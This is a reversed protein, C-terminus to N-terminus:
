TSSVPPAPRSDAVPEGAAVGIAIALSILSKGEGERGVLLTSHGACLCRNPSGPSRPPCRTSWRWCMSRVFSAGRTATRLSRGPPDTSAISPSSTTWSRGASRLRRRSGGRFPGFRATQVFWQRFPLGLLDALALWLPAPDVSGVCSERWCALGVDDDSTRWVALTPQTDADDGYANEWFCLPCRAIWSSPGTRGPRLTADDLLRVFWTVADQPGRAKRVAAHAAHGGRSM